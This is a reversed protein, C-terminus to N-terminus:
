PFSTSTRSRSRTRESRTPAAVISGPSRAKTRCPSPPAPLVWSHRAPQEPDHDRRVPSHGCRDADWSLVASTGRTAMSTSSNAATSTTALCQSPMSDRVVGDSIRRIPGLRFPFQDGPILVAVDARPHYRIECDAEHRTTGDDFALRANEAKALPAVVHDCTVLALRGRWNVCFTTGCTQDPLIIKLITMADRGQTSPCSM